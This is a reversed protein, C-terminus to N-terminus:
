WEFAESDAVFTVSSTSIINCKDIVDHVLGEPGCLGVGVSPITGNKDCWERLSCFILSLDPRCGTKYDLDPKESSDDISFSSLPSEIKTEDTNYGKQKSTEPSVLYYKPPTKSNCKKSFLFSISIGVAVFFITCLTTLGAQLLQKQEYKMHSHGETAYKSLFLGFIFGVGALVTLETYHGEGMLQKMFPSVPTINPLLSSEEGFKTSLVPSPVRPTDFIASDHEECNDDTRTVHIHMEIECDPLIMSQSQIESLEERYLELMKEERVVWVFVIRKLHSFDLSSNQNSAVITRLSSMLPTVGIGGAVMLAASHQLYGNARMHSSGHFGDLFVRTHSLMMRDFQKALQELRKTWDGVVKLDFSITPNDATPPACAISMPHYQLYSIQPINLAVWQGPECTYGPEVALVIRVFGPVPCSLSVLNVPTRTSCWWLMKDLIYATLGPAIYYIFNDYHLQLLILFPIFLFHTYYFWEYKHRRFWPLSTIMMPITVAVAIWGYTIVKADHKCEESPWMCAKFQGIM